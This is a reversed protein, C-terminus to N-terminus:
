ARESQVIQVQRSDELGCLGYRVFVIPLLVPPYDGKGRFRRSEAEEHFRAQLQVVTATAPILKTPRSEGSQAASTTM